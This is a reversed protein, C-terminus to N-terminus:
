DPREVYYAVRARQPVNASLAQYDERWEGENEDWWLFWVYKEGSTPDRFVTTPFFIKWMQWQRSIKRSNELLWKANRYGLANTVDIKSRRLLISGSLQKEGLRGLNAFEVTASWIDDSCPESDEYIEWGNPPSIWRDILRPILFGRYLLRRSTKQNSVWSQRLNYGIAAAVVVMMLGGVTVLGVEM